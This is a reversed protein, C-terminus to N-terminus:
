VIQATRLSNTTTTKSSSSNSISRTIDNDDTASFASSTNTNTVILVPITSAALVFVALFLTSVHLLWFAAVVRDFLILLLMTDMLIEPLLATISYFEDSMCMEYDKVSQRYLPAVLAYLVISYNVVSWRLCATKEAPLTHFAIGFQLFLLAFVILVLACNSCWFDSQSEDGDSCPENEQSEEEQQSSDAHQVLIMCVEEDYEEADQEDRPEHRPLNGLLPTSLNNTSTM